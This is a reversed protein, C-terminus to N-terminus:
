AERVCAPVRGGDILWRYVDAMQGGIADWGYKGAVLNRGRRGM